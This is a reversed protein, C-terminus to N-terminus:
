TDRNVEDWDEERGWLIWNIAHHREQIIGLNVTDTQLNKIKGNRATWHSKEIEDAMELIEIDDRLKAIKLFRKSSDANLPSIAQQFEAITGQQNPAVMQDVVGLAWALVYLREIHWSFDIQQKLTHEEAVIFKLEEPSLAEWLSNNKLWLIVDERPTPTNALWIGFLAMARVAVEKATM